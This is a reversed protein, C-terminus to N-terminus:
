EKEVALYRYIVCNYHKAVIAGEPRNDSFRVSKLTKRVKEM